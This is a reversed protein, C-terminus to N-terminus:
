ARQWAHEQFLVKSQPSPPNTLEKEACHSRRLSMVKVQLMDFAVSCRSIIAAQLKAKSDNGPSGIGTRAERKWM